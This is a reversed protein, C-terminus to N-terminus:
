AKRLGEHTQGRKIALIGRFFKATIRYYVEKYETSFAELQDLLQATYSLENTQITEHILNLLLGCYIDRGRDYDAYQNLSKSLTRFFVLQLEPTILELNNAFLQIEQLTWTHLNTLYDVITQRDKPLIVSPDYDGTDTLHEILRIRSRVEAVRVKSIPSSDSQTIFESLMRRLESLNHSNSHKAYRVTYASQDTLHYNRHVFLFEDIDMSIRDLIELLLPAAVNHKGKEFKIAFSKSIIGAYVNKQTLGKDLRVQRILEGHTLTM